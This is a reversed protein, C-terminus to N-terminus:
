TKWWCRGKEYAFCSSIRVMGKLVIVSVLRLCHGIINFIGNMARAYLKSLIRNNKFINKVAMRCNKVQMDFSLTDVHLHQLGDDKVETSVTGKVVANVDEAVVVVFFVAM